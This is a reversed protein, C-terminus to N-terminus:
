FAMMWGRQQPLPYQCSHFHIPFTSQFQQNSSLGLNSSSLPALGQRTLNRVIRYGGRKRTMTPIVMKSLKRSLQKANRMLNFGGGFPLRWWAVEPLRCPKSSWWLFRFRRHPLRLLDRFCRQFRVISRMLRISTSSIASLGIPSSAHNRLVYNSRRNRYVM